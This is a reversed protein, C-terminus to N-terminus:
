PDKNRRADHLQADSFTLCEFHQSTASNRPCSAVSKSRYGLKDTLGGRVMLRHLHSAHPRRASFMELRSDHEPYFELGIIRSEFHERSSNSRWTTMMSEVVRQDQTMKEFLEVNQVVSVRFILTSTSGSIEATRRRRERLQEAAPSLRRTQRGGRGRVLRETAPAGLLLRSAMAFRQWRELASFTSTRKADKPDPADPIYKGIM